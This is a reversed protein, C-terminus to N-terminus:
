HQGGPNDCNPNNCVSCKVPCGNPCREANKNQGNEPHVKYGSGGCERCAEEFKPGENDAVKITHRKPVVHALGGDPHFKPDPNKPDPCRGCSFGLATSLPHDKPVPQNIKVKNGGGDVPDLKEEEDFWAEEINGHPKAVSAAAHGACFSRWMFELDYEVKDDNLMVPLAILFDKFADSSLDAKTM